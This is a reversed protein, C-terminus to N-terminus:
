EFFVSALSLIIRFMLRVLMPFYQFYQTSQPTLPGTTDM